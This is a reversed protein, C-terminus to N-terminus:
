PAAARRRKKWGWGATLLGIAIVGLTGSGPEPVSLAGFLGHAADQLGAAFYLVNQSGGSGGNGFTIAWLEDEHFTTGNNLTIQGQWDGGPTYANIKGDGLNNGVLLDGGFQGWGAPAIALGWPTDLHKGATDDILRTIFTGDTKFEDVIGGLPNNPNVFTVFLTGNLNQVNFANYNAPLNPDTFSGTMQWKSNFIDVNHSRADAAYLFAQGGSNGIGLGTFAAGSVSTMMTASAGGNWAFIQGGLNDFIFSAKNGNLQFDTSVTTIGPASTNVQGTPGNPVGVTLLPGAANGNTVSYVTTTGTGANSVWFPSATSFSIGWPNILNPDTRQAMGPVDAVLNTQIYDGRAPANSAAIVLTATIWALRRAIRCM